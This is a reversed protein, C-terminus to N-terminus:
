WVVTSVVRQLGGVSNKSVESGPLAVLLLASFLGLAVSLIRMEVSKSRMASFPEALGRGLPVLDDPSQHLGISYKCRVTSLTIAACV